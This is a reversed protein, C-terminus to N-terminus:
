VHARGIEPYWGAATGAILGTATLGVLGTPAYYSEEWGLDTNFWLVKQNALAVRAADDAPIGYYSDREATTGSGIRQLRPPMIKTLRTELDRISQKIREIMGEPTRSYPDSM